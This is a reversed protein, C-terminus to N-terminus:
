APETLQRRLVNITTQIEDNSIPTVDLAKLQLERLVAPGERDLLWELWAEWRLTYKYHCGRCLCYTWTWRTKLYRRSYAHAWQLDTTQGCAECAGRGLVLERALADAERILRGRTTKRQARLRKSRKIRRPVKAERKPKPFRM